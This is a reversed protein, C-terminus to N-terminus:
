LGLNIGFKVNGKALAMVTMMTMMMMMMMMMMMWFIGFGGGRKQKPGNQELIPGALFGAEESPTRALSTDRGSPAAGAM